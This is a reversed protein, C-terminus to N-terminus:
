VVELFIIVSLFVCFKRFFVCIDELFYFVLLVVIGNLLCFGDMGRGYFDFVYFVGIIKYYKIVIVVFYFIFFM